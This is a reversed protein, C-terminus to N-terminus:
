QRKMKFQGSTHYCLSAFRPVCALPWRAIKNIASSHYCDNDVDETPIEIKMRGLAQLASATMTPALPCHSSMKDRIHHFLELRYM